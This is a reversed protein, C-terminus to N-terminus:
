GLSTQCHASCLWAKPSLCRLVSLSSHPPFFGPINNSPPSGSKQALLRVQIQIVLVCMFSGPLITHTWLGLGPAPSPGPSSLHARCALHGALRASATPEINLPLSRLFYHPLHYLFHRIHVGPRWVWYIPLCPSMGMCVAGMGRWPLPLLARMQGRLSPLKLSPSGHLGRLETPPHCKRYDPPLRSRKRPPLLGFLLGSRSLSWLFDASCYLSM